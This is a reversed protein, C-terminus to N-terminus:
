AYTYEGLETGISWGSLASHNNIGARNDECVMEGEGDKWLSVLFISGDLKM